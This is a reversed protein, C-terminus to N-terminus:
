KNRTNSRECYEVSDLQFRPKLVKMKYASQPTAAQKWFLNWAEKNKRNSVNNKLNKKLHAMDEKRIKIVEAFSAPDMYHRTSNNQKKNSLVRKSLSRTHCKVFAAKTNSVLGTGSNSAINQKQQSIISRLLNSVDNTKSSSM